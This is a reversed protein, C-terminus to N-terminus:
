KEAKAFVKRKALKKAGKRQLPKLVTMSERLKRIALNTAKRQAKDEINNLKNQLADIRQAIMLKEQEVNVVSKLRNMRKQMVSTKNALKVRQKQTLPPKFSQRVAGQEKQLNSVRDKARQLTVRREPVLSPSSHSKM